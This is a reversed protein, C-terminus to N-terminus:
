KKGKKLLDIVVPLIPGIAGLAGGGLGNGASTFSSIGSKVNKISDGVASVEDAVAAFDKSLEEAAMERIERVMQEEAGPTSRRRLLFPVIALAFNAIALIFAARSEAAAETLRYFVGMNVFVLGVFVCGISVLALLLENSRRRADAKFLTVEARALIRLKVIFENM